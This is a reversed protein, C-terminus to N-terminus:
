EESTPPQTVNRLVMEAPLPSFQEASRPAAVIERWFPNAEQEARRVAALRRRRRRRTIAGGIVLVILALLGAGAVILGRRVRPVVLRPTTTRRVTGLSVGTSGAPHSSRGSGGSTAFANARAIFPDAGAFVPDPADAPVSATVARYADIIGYGYEPSRVASHDDLTALVRAVVQRGTLKPYKSWVLAMAASAIATAQSTGDGSYASGVTRSLSAIAVGPATLTLYEHRSSFDAVQDGSDVAGVSIVGLCVGPEEIANNTPGDNGSAALVISGKGLAYYIASQEDAPCPDGNHGPNAAGGLSMSIVKGGHDAAWRIADALHDPKGSDSTGTLPVAIPLLKASPALGTIGLIGPQGVMISAMATGHGFDSTERDIQGNGGAGFDIGSLVNANLEPLSANVGTDIEAITIGKGRAGDAWLQTVHWADFWYEPADSPGPTALAPAATSVALLMAATVAVASRLARTV